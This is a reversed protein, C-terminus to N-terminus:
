EITATTTPAFSAFAKVIDGIVPIDALASLKEVLGAMAEAIQDLNLGFNGLVAWIAQLMCMVERRVKILHIIDYLFRM